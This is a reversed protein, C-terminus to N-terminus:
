SYQTYIKPLSYYTALVSLMIPEPKNFVYM